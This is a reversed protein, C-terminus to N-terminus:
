RDRLKRGGLLESGLLKFRQRGRQSKYVCGTQDARSQTLEPECSATSQGCIFPHEGGVALDVGLESSHCTSDVRYMRDGLQPHKGDGRNASFQQHRVVNDFTDTKLFVASLVLLLPSM